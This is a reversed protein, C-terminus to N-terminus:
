KSFSNTFQYFSVGGILSHTQWQSTRWIIENAFLHNGMREISHFALVLALVLCVDISVFVFERREKERGFLFTMVYNADLWEREDVKLM